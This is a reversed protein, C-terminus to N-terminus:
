TLCNSLFKMPLFSGVGFVRHADLTPAGLPWGVARSSPPGVGQVVLQGRLAVVLVPHLPADEGGVRALPVAVAPGLGVVVAPPPRLVVLELHGHKGVLGHGQEVGAPVPLLLLLLLLMPDAHGAVVPLDVPFLVQQPLSARAAQFMEM